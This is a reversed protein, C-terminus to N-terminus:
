DSFTTAARARDAAALRRSAPDRYLRIITDVLQAADGPAYLLGSVM